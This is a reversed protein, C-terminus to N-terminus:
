QHVIYQTGFIKAVVSVDIINIVGDKKADALQNWRQEGPKSSFAVAVIALDSINVQWDSNLDGVFAIETLTMRIDGKGPGSAVIGLQQTLFDDFFSESVLLVGTRPEYYYTIFMAGVGHESLFEDELIEQSAVLYCRSVQGFITDVPTSISPRYSINADVSRGLWNMVITELTNEELPYKLPDIWLLWRGWEQGHEDIMMMSDLNVTVVLKKNITIPSFIGIGERIGPTVSSNHMEFNGIVQDLPIRKVFSLDGRAARELIETGYYLVEAPHTWEPLKFLELNVEVKLVAYSDNVSLCIWSYNWRFPYGVGGDDFLTHGSFAYCAHTGPKLWFFSSVGFAYYNNSTAFNGFLILVYFFVPTNRLNM